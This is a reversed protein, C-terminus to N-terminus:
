GQRRLWRFSCQSSRWELDSCADFGDLTTTGTGRCQADLDSEHNCSEICRRTQGPTQGPRGRTQGADAGTQGADAGRRGQTQGPRGRTQGTDAGTHGMLNCIETIHLLRIVTVKVFWRWQWWRNDAAIWKKGEAARVWQRFHKSWPSTGYQPRTHRISGSVATHKPKRPPTLKRLSRLRIVTQLQVVLQLRDIAEIQNKWPHV